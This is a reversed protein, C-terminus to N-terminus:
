LTSIYIQLEETTGKRYKTERVESIFIRLSMGIQPAAMGVLDNERMTYILDTIIQHTYSDDYKEVSKATERLVAEGLLTTKCIAMSKAYVLSTVCSVGLLKAKPHKMHLM